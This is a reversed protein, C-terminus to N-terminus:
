KKYTSILTESNDLNEFEVYRNVGGFGAERVSSPIPDLEFITRYVYDDRHEIDAVVHNLEAIRANLIDYKTLIENQEEELMAVKPTHYFSSYVINILLASAGTVVLFLLFRLIIQKRVLKIKKFTLSKSDFQYKVKLM